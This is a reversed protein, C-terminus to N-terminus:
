CVIHDRWFRTYSLKAQWRYLWHIAFSSCSKLFVASIVLVDVGARPQCPYIRVKTTTTKSLLLPYSSDFCSIGCFLIDCLPVIFWICLKIMSKIEKVTVHCGRLWFAPAMLRFHIGTKVLCKCSLRVQIFVICIALLNMEFCPIRGTLDHSKSKRRSLVKNWIVM